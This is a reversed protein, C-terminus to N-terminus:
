SPVAYIQGAHELIKRQALGQTTPGGTAAGTQPDYTAGHCPCLIEGGQFGVTCGAHTCVASFATLSGDAQRIVIDPQGDGPDAYTAGQQAPLRSSPGLKVANAPVANQAAGSTRVSSASRGSPNSPATSATAGDPASSAITTPPTYSGKLLAAIGAVGLALAGFEGLLVRRTRASPDVGPRSRQAGGLSTRRILNPSPRELANDLALQESAGALVFPLWAFAFVIDPGLFYPTAHWSATLFLLLSLGLGAAAALRTGLGAVTLLGIAIEVIAVGVGALVPHPLAFTRLIFGGPTGDSFGQLQTGIYTSSGEHLFGGDTLKQIGAYVFTGGFFLRLPLLAAGVSLRRNM